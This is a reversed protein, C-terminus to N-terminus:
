ALLGEKRAVELFEGGTKKAAWLRISREISQEYAFMDQTSFERNTVPCTFITRDVMRTDTYFLGGFVHPTRELRSSKPAETTIAFPSTSSLKSAFPELTRAIRQYYDFKELPTEFRAAEAERIDDESRDYAVSLAHAEAEKIQEATADDAVALAVRYEKGNRGIYKVYRGEKTDPQPTTPKSM